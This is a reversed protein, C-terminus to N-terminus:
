KASPLPTSKSASSTATVDPSGESGEVISQVTAFVHLASRVRRKAFVIEVTKALGVTWTVLSAFVLGILVAKVVEDAHVFM